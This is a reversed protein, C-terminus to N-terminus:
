ARAKIWDADEREGDLVEEAADEVDAKAVERDGLETMDRLLERSGTLPMCVEQALRYAFASRFIPDMLTPDDINKTYVITPDIMNTCIVKTDDPGFLRVAFPVPPARRGLPNEIRLVKLCDSPYAYAYSWLGPPTIDLSAPTVEATAFSWPVERLLRERVDSFVLSVAEAETSNEDLAEIEYQDSLRSLATKAIQVNSTM